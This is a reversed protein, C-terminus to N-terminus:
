LRRHSSSTAQPLTEEPEDPEPVEFMFKWVPSSSLNLFYLDQELGTMYKVLNKKQLIMCIVLFSVGLAFFICGAIMFAPHSEAGLVIVGTALLLLGVVFLGAVTLVTSRSSPGSRLKGNPNSGSSQGNLNQSARSRRPGTGIGQKPSEEAACTGVEGATTMEPGLRPYNQVSLKETVIVRNNAQLRSIM